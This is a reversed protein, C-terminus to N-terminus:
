SALVVSKCAVGYHGLEICNSCGLPASAEGGSIENRVQCHVIFCADVTNECVYRM